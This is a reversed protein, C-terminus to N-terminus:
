ARVLAMILAAFLIIPIAVRAVLGVNARLGGMQVLRAYGMVYIPWAIMTAMWIVLMALLLDLLGDGAESDNMGAGILILGLGLVTFLMGTSAAQWLLRKPVAQWAKPIHWRIVEGFLFGAVVLAGGFVLASVTYLLDDM